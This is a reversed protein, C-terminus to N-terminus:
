ARGPTARKWSGAERKGGGAGVLSISVEHSDDQRDSGHDDNCYVEGCREQGDGPEFSSPHAKM